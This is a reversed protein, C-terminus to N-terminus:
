SVTFCNVAGPSQKWKGDVKELVHLSWRGCLGGCASGSYVIAQTKNKNFGVASFIHYGGSQPYRKYFTEWGRGVGEEKFITNITEESVIEYPTESTFEWRLLKRDQSVRQFDAIADKFRKRTEASLCEDVSDQSPVTTGKIVITGKAFSSSEEHPLLARYVEYADHDDYTETAPPQSQQAFLTCVIFLSFTGIAFRM